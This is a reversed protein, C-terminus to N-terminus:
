IGGSVVAGARLPRPPYRMVLCWVAKAPAPVAWCHLVTGIDDPPQRQQDALDSPGDRQIMFEHGPASRLDVWRDALGHAQEFCL